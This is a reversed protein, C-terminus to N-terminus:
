FLLRFSLCPVPLHLFIAASKNNSAVRALLCCPLDELVSSLMDMRMNWGTVNAEFNFGVSIPCGLQGLAWPIGRFPSLLERERSMIPSHYGHLWLLWPLRCLVSGTLIGVSQPDLGWRKSLLQQCSCLMRGGPPIVHEVSHDWVWWM